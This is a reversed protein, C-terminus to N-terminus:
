LYSYKIHPKYQYYILIVLLQEYLPTYPSTSQNLKFYSLLPSPNFLLFWWLTPEHENSCYRDWSSEVAKSYEGYNHFYIINSYVSCPFIQKTKNEGRKGQRQWRAFKLRPSNCHRLNDRKLWLKTQTFELHPLVTQIPLNTVVNKVCALFLSTYPINNSSCHAFPM